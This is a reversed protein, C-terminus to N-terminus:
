PSQSSVTLAGSILGADDLNGGSILVVVRRGRFM